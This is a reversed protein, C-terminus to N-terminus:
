NNIITILKRACINRTCKCQEQEKYIFSLVQLTADDFPKEEVIQNIISHSEEGRGMRFLALGKLAKACRLNPSKKLVKEAEHLAKKNNNVEFSDLFIFVFFFHGFIFVGFERTFVCVSDVWCCKSDRRLVCM